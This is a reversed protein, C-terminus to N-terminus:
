LAVQRLRARDCGFKRVTSRRYGRQQILGCFSESREFGPKVLEEDQVFHALAGRPVKVADTALLLVVHIDHGLLDVLRVALQAVGASARRQPRDDSDSQYRHDQRTAAKSRARLIPEPSRDATWCVTASVCPRASPLSSVAIM